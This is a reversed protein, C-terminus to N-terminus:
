EVISPWDFHELRSHKKVIRKITGDNYLDVIRQNIRELDSELIKKQGEEQVLLVLEMPAIEKVRVLSYSTNFDIEIANFNLFLDIRGATMAKLGNQISTYGLPTSPLGFFHKWYVKNRHPVRIAGISLHSLDTIQSLKPARKDLGILSVKPYAIPTPIPRHVAPPPRNTYSENTYIPSGIFIDSKYPRLLLSFQAESAHANIKATLRATPFYVVDVSCSTVELIASLLDPFIGTPQNNVSYLFPIDNNWVAVNLKCAKTNNHSFANQSLLFIINFSLAALRTLKRSSIRTTTSVTSDHVRAM